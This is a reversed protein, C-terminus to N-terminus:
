KNTDDLILGHCLLLEVGGTEQGAICILLM